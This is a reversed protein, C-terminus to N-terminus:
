VVEFDFHLYGSGHCGHHVPLLNYKPHLRVTAAANIPHILPEDDVESTVNLLLPYITPIFYRGKANKYM